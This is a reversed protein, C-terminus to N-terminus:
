KYGDVKLIKIVNDTNCTNNWTNIGGTNSTNVSITTGNISMIKFYGITTNNEYHTHELCVQKGNPNYVRETKVSGYAYTIDIYAYNASSDSLTVTGSTGSINNYINKPKAQIEGQYCYTLNSSSDNFRGNWYAIMSMDPVYNNNTGWGSNSKSSLSKVGRACASGLIYDNFKDAYATGNVRM